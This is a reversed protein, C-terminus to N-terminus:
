NAAVINNLNNIVGHLKVGSDPTGDGDIGVTGDDNRTNGSVVKTNIINTTGDEDTYAM